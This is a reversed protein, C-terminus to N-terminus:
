QFYFTHESKTSAAKRFKEWDLFSNLQINDYVYIFSWTLYGNNKYFKLSVQIKEVSKRFKMYLVEHFDTWHVDLQEIRISSCVLLFFSLYFCMWVSTVFSINTKQLKIFASLITLNKHAINSRCNKKKRIIMRLVPLKGTTVTFLLHM